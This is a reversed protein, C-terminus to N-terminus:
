RSARPPSTSWRERWAALGGVAKEVRGACVACNMGMVPYTATASAVGYGAARTADVLGGTGAKAPDYSVQARETAFNVVATAVGPVGALAKEVRGACVACSMDGVPIQITVLGGTVALAESSNRDRGQAPGDAMEATPANVATGSSRAASGAAM